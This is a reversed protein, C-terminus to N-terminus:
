WEECLIRGFSKTNEGVGIDGISVACANDVLGGSETFVIVTDQERMTHYACFLYGRAGNVVTSSEGVFDRIENSLM